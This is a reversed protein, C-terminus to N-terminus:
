QKIVAPKEIQNRDTHVMTHNFPFLKIRWNEETKFHLWDLWFWLSSGLGLDLHTGLCWERCYVTTLEGVLPKDWKHFLRCM